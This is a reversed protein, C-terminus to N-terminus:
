TVDLPDTTGLHSFRVDRTEMRGLSGLALKEATGLPKQLIGVRTRRVGSQAKRVGLDDWLGIGAQCRHPACM